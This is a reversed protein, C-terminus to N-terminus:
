ATPIKLFIYICYFLLHIGCYAIFRIPAGLLGLMHLHSHGRYLLWLNHCKLIKAKEVNHLPALRGKWLSLTHFFYSKLIVYSM